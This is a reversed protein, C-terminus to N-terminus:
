KKQFTFDAKSSGQPVNKLSVVGRIQFSGAQGPTSMSSCVAGTFAPAPAQAKLSASTAVAVMCCLGLRAFFHSRVHVLLSKYM